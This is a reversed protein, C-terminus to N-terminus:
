TICEYCRECMGAWLMITIFAEENPQQMAAVPHRDEGFGVVEM